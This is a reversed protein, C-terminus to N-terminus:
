GKESLADRKMGIWLTMAIIGYASSMIIVPLILLVMDIFITYARELQENDWTEICMHNGRKLLRFETYVPIPIMVVFALAWCVAITRYSHSLTQWKRSHLPRCIAFYRELAIAVLTFCSTAVSVGSFIYFDGCILLLLYISHLGCTHLLAYLICKTNYPYLDRM